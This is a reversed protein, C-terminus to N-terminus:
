KDRLREVRERTYYDPALTEGDDQWLSEIPVDFYAAIAAIENLRLPRTGAELKAVTRQQMGFGYPLLGAGLEKQSIGRSERLRRVSKAVTAEADIPSPTNAQEHPATTMFFGYEHLRRM